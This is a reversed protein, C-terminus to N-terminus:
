IRIYNVSHLARCSNGGAYSISSQLDQKIENLKERYTMDDIPLEITCGEINRNSTKNMSSASGYYVKKGDQTPSPSDICGSFLKGCMVLDAGARMAKAIDGNHKIGGDAILLPRLNPDLNSDQTIREVCSFMPFTFGTKLKTTCAAGPGVGVKVANAGWYGLDDFGEVTCVNGAIIFTTPLFCKIHKIMNKMALSHGHAIDITIYDVRLESYSLKQILNFDEVKVGISISVTKWPQTYKVFNYQDIGFRHMIYFFGHESLQKALSVDITCKMNAPVVPLNFTSPGVMVSTDIFQRSLVESYRPLLAVDDYHLERVHLYSPKLQQLDVTTPIIEGNM